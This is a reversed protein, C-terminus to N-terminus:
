PEEAGAEKEKLGRAAMVIVTILPLIFECVAANFPWAYKAAYVQEMDSPYLVAAIAVAIAGIPIVIPKYSRLKLIQATSLVTVYYFILIKVFAAILLGIAVLIDM